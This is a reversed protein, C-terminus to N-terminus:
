CFINENIGGRESVRSPLNPNVFSTSLFNEKFRLRIICTQKNQLDAIQYVAGQRECYGEIDVSM